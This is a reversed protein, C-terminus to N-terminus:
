LRLCKWANREGFNVATFRCIQVCQARLCVKRCKECLTVFLYHQRRVSRSMQFTNQSSDPLMCVSFAENENAPPSEVWKPFQRSLNESWLVYACLQDQDPYIAFNMAYNNRESYTISCSSAQKVTNNSQICTQLCKHEVYVFFLYTPAGTYVTRILYKCLCQSSTLLYLM